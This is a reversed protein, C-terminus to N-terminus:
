YHGFKHVARVMTVFNQLQLGPHNSLSTDLGLILGPTTRFTDCIQKIYNEIDETSAQAVMETSFGGMFVMKGSWEVALDKLSGIESGASQVLRIGIENLGLLASACPLQTDLAIPLGHEKAPTCMLDLRPLISDEFLDPDAVLAPSAM